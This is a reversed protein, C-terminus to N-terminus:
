GHPEDCEADARLGRRSVRRGAQEHCVGTHAHHDIASRTRNRWSLEVRPEHSVLPALEDRWDPPHCRLAAEDRIRSGELPSTQVDRVSRHDVGIVRSAAVPDRPGAHRDHPRRLEVLERAPCSAGIEHEGLRRRPIPGYPEGSSDTAVEVNLRDRLRRLALADLAEDEGVDATGCQSREITSARWREALERPITLYEYAPPSV